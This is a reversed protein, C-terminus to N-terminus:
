AVIRSTVRETHVLAQNVLVALLAALGSGTLLANPDLRSVGQLILSGLSEVGIYATLTIVSVLMIASVRLGAIIVPLAAVLEIRFLIQHDSMGIGRAAEKVGPDVTQLGSITNRMIPLVGKIFLPVLAGTYGIGLLPISIALLVIEPTAQLLNIVPVIFSFAGVRFVLIGFIVGLVTAGALAAAFLWIHQITLHIIQDGFISLYDFYSM